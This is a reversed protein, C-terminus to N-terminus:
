NEVSQLDTTRNSMYGSKFITKFKSVRVSDGAKFRAPVAIKVHSYITILFSAVTRPSLMSPDCASLEVKV